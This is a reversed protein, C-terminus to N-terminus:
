TIEPNRTDQDQNGSESGSGEPKSKEDKVNKSFQVKM